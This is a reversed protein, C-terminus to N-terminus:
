RSGARVGEMEKIAVLMRLGQEEDAFRCRVRYRAPDHLVQLPVEQCALVDAQAEVLNGLAITIPQGAAPREDAYFSIGNASIDVAVRWPSLPQALRDPHVRVRPNSRREHGLPEDLVEGRKQCEALLRQYAEVLKANMALTRERTQQDEAAGRSIARTGVMM